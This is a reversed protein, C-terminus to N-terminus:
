GPGKPPVTRRFVIRTIKLAYHNSYTGDPEVTFIYAKEGGIINIYELRNKFYIWNKESCLTCESLLTIHKQAPHVSYKHTVSILGETALSSCDAAAQTLVTRVVSCSPHSNNVDWLRVHPKLLGPQTTLASAVSHGPRNATRFGTLAFFQRNEFVMWVQELQWMSEQDTPVPAGERPTFHGPRSM